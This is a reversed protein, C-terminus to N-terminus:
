PYKTKSRLGVVHLKFMAPGQSEFKAVSTHWHKNLTTPPTVAVGTEHEGGGRAFGNREKAERHLAPSSM